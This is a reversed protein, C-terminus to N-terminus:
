GITCAAPNACCCVRPPTSPITESTNSDGPSPRQYSEAADAAGGKKGPKTGGRRGSTGAQAGKGAQQVPPWSYHVHCHEPSSHTTAIPLVKPSQAGQKVQCAFLLVEHSATELFLHTLLLMCSAATPVQQSAGQAPAPAAAPAAAQAHRKMHQQIAHMHRQLSPRLVANYRAATVLQLRCALLRRAPAPVHTRRSPLTACRGVSRHGADFNYIYGLSSQQAVLCMRNSTVPALCRWWLQPMNCAAVICQLMCLLCPPGLCYWLCRTSLACRCMEAVEGDQEIRRAAAEAGDGSQAGADRAAAAERAFRQQAEEACARASAQFEFFSLHLDNLADKPRKGDTGKYWAEGQLPRCCDIILRAWELGIWARSSTVLVLLQLASSIVPLPRKVACADLFFYAGAVVWCVLCSRTHLHCVAPQEESVMCSGLRPMCVCAALGGLCYRHIMNTHSWGRVQGAQIMDEIAAAEHLYSTCAKLKVRLGELTRSRMGARLGAREAAQEPAGLAALKEM